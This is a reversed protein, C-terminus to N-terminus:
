SWSQGSFGPPRDTDAGSPLPAAPETMWSEMDRIVVAAEIDRTLMHYGARYYALRRRGPPVAPLRAIFRKIARAPILEDHAGYLILARQDFKPAANQAMTMLSVLGEITDARTAKIFLPDRALERLMEVNDSAMIHLSSGTFTIGPTFTDALWLAGREFINMEGRGWVAPALLIYGDADPKEAGAAGTAGVIAVAGGMSEGFVFLPVAPYRARLLHTAEAMDQAMRKAGAWRGRDPARGFGRQDYAFTAIGDKAMAMAPEAVGHSYDNFGHVYLVVAHPRGAPLWAQLPLKVGDDARLFDGDLVPRVTDPAHPPVDPVGACGVLVTALAWAAVRVLRLRM